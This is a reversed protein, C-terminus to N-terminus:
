SMIVAFSVPESHIGEGTPNTLVFVPSFKLVQNGHSPKCTVTTYEEKYEQNYCPISLRFTQWLDLFYFEKPVDEKSYQQRLQLSCSTGNEVRDSQLWRRIPSIIDPQLQCLDEIDATRIHPDLALKISAPRQSTTM